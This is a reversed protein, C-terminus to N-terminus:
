LEEIEEARSSEQRRRVAECNMRRTDRDKLRDTNFMPKFKNMSVYKILRLRINTRVLFHDSNIDAGKQVRADLVASRMHRSILLHDIQNKVRGNASVWTAKHIDKHQFLTGRVELSWAMQWLFIASGAGM